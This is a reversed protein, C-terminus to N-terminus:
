ELLIFIIKVIEDYARGYRVHISVPEERGLGSHLKEVSRRLDTCSCRARFCATRATGKTERKWDGNWWQEMTM